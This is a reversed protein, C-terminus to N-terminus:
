YWTWTWTQPQIAATILQYQHWKIKRDKLNHSYLYPLAFPKALWQLMMKVTRCGSGPLQIGTHSRGCQGTYLWSTGLWSTGVTLDYGLWTTGLTLEYGLVIFDVFYMDSHVISSFKRDTQTDAFHVDILSIVCPSPTVLQFHYSKPTSEIRSISAPHCKWKRAM